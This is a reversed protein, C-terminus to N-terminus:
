LKNYDYDYKQWYCDFTVVSSGYNPSSANYVAWDIQKIHLLGLRKIGAARKSADYGYNHYYAVIFVADLKYGPDDVLSNTQHDCFKDSKVGGAISTVSIGGIKSNDVDIPFTTEDIKEIEDNLVKQILENETANNPDLYRFAIIPTGTFSQNAGPVRNDDGKTGEPNTANIYFNKLQGNSNAPGNIQLVNGSVASFFFYPLVANYDDNSIGTKPTNGSGGWMSVGNIAAYPDLETKWKANEYLKGNEPCFFSAFSNEAVRGQCWAQLNQWFKVYPVFVTFPDALTISENNDFYWAKLAVKSEGDPFEGAPITFSIENASKFIQADYDGVTIRDINNLYEGTLTISRGVATKEFSYANFRPVYRIVKISPADALETSVTTSGDFYSLTIKANSDEVYPVTVILETDSQNIIKAEHGSSQGEATFTVATASNLFEGSIMINDGLEAEGQLLAAHIRPVAFSCQFEANSVGEGLSNVLKVAGKTVGTVVKITLSTNSVKSALEVETGGIYAKTVNQLYEGKVSVIAGVPARAPSFSSIVPAHDIVEDVSERDCSAAMIAAAALLLIYKKM